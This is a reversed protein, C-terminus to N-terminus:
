DKSLCLIAVVCVIVGSRPDTFPLHDLLRAHLQLRHVTRTVRADFVQAVAAVEACYHLDEEADWVELPHSYATILNWKFSFMYYQNDQGERFITITIYITGTWNSYKFKMGLSLRLCITPHKSTKIPAMIVYIFVSHVSFMVNICSKMPQKM